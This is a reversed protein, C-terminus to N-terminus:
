GLERRTLLETNIASVEGLVAQVAAHADVRASVTEVLVEPVYVLRSRGGERAVQLYTYPGHGPGQACRCGSKGCRREQRILRGAVLAEVDGLSAALRRRRARLQRVSYGSLDLKHEM